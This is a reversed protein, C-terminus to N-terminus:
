IGDPVFRTPPRPQPAASSRPAPPQESAAAAPQDTPKTGAAAYTTSRLQDLRSQPGTLHEVGQTYGTALLPLDAVPSPGSKATRAYSEFGFFFALAAAAALTLGGLALRLAL